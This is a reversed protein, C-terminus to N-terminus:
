PQGVGSFRVPLLLRTAGGDPAEFKMLKSAEVECATLSASATTSSAKAESVHGDDDVKMWITVDGKANPDMTLEKRFCGVFRFRNRALTAEANAISSMGPSPELPGVEANLKPAATVPPACVIAKLAGGFRSDGRKKGSDFGFSGTVSESAQFSLSSADVELWGLDVDPNCAGTCDDVPKDFNFVAPQAGTFPKGACPEDGAVITVRYGKYKERTECTVGATAFLEIGDVCRLEDDLEVDVLASLARFPKGDVLGSPADSPKVSWPVVLRAVLEASPAALPVDFTGAGHVPTPSTVDFSIRGRIRAGATLQVPELDIQTEHNSLNISHDMGSLAVHAGIRHGALFDGKPGPPIVLEVSSTTGPTGNTVLSVDLGRESLSASGAPYPETFGKLAVSFPGNPTIPPSAITVVSPAANSKVSV